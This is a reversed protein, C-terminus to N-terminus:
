ASQVIGPDADYRKLLVEADMPFPEGPYAREYLEHLALRCVDLDNWKQISTENLKQAIRVAVKRYPERLLPRYIDNKDM